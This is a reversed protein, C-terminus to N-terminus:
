REWGPCEVVPQPPYKPYSEQLRSRQCLLFRSTATSVVKMHSCDECLSRLTGKGPPTLRRDGPPKM